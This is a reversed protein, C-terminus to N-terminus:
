FVLTTEFSPSTIFILILQCCESAIFRAWSSSGLSIENSLDFKSRIIVKYEYRSYILNEKIRIIIQPNGIINIACGHVGINKYEDIM